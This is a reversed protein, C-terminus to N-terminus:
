LLKELVVENDRYGLTRYLSHAATNASLVGVRIRTAGTKRAHGEAAEMLLKGIGQGRFNRRVLLDTVYAHEREEYIISSSLWRALVCVFGVIEGSSEAVFIAGDARGCERLLDDVYAHAIAEPAARNPEISREFAQLEAFCKELEARDGDVVKRISIM